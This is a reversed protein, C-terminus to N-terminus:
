REASYPRLDLEVVLMPVLVLVLEVVVGHAPYLQGILVEAVADTADTEAEDTATIEGEEVPEFDVDLVSATGDGEVVVVVLANPRTVVVLEVVVM